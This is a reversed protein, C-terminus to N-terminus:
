RFARRRDIKSLGGIYNLNKGATDAAREFNSDIKMWIIAATIVFLVSAIVIALIRKM